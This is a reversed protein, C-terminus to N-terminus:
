LGRFIPTRKEKFARRGDAADQTAFCITQLDREYRIADKRNMSYAATLSDKAMRAAVPARSAIIGAIQGVRAHLDALPAIEAINCPSKSLRM